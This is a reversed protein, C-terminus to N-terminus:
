IEKDIIIEEGLMDVIKVAIRIPEKAIDLEYNGEIVDAKKKPADSYSIKFLKGDYDTDILVCDIMSRFDEIKINLLSEPNNIRDVITPSIFNTIKIKVKVGNRKIDVEGEPTNYIIFKGHKADTRLEIVDIKNVQHKKNYDELWVDTTLEKGLCVVTINRDEQPRNKLENQILDLDLLCLPHNFDIIKVLNRGLVGEFFLDTRTREIGIKNIALETAETKLLQLDYDNIKYHTFSLYYSEQTASLRQQSSKEYENYQDLIIRQLRKSTTQIAGKNMDIGIWRRGAKQAVASTTGSGVFCDLILDNPSSAM